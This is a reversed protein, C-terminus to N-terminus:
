LRPIREKNEIFARCTSYTFESQRLHMDALLQDGVLWFTNVTENMKIIKWFLIDGLLAIKSLSTRIAIQNLLEIAEQKKIFRSKKSNCVACKSSFMIKENSAKSVKQNIYETDKKCKLCYSLM